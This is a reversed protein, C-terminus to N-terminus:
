FNHPGAKSCRSLEAAHLQKRGPKHSSPPSETDAPLSPTKPLAPSSISPAPDATGSDSFMDLSVTSIREPHVLKLKEAPPDYVM